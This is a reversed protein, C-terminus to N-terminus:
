AIRWNSYIKEINKEPIWEKQNYIEIYYLKPNWGISIDKIIGIGLLLKSESYVRVTDGIKFKKLSNEV